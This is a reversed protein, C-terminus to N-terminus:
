ERSSDSWCSRARGALSRGVTAFHPNALKVSKSFLRTRDVDDDEFGDQLHKYIAYTSVILQGEDKPFKHVRIFEGAICNNLDLTGQSPVRIELARGIKLCERVGKAM